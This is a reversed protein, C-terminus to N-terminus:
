RRFGVRGTVVADWIRAIQSHRIRNGGFENLQRFQEGAGGAGGAENM